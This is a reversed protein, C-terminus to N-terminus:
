SDRPSPSTYLLCTNFELNQAAEINELKDDIFVTENPILEYRNVALLYIDEFPKIKKQKGRYNIKEM